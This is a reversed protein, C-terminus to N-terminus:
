DNEPIDIKAIIRSMVEYEPKIKEYEAKFEEDAKKERAEIMKGILQVEFHIKEKEIPTVRTEDALYDAFSNVEKKM